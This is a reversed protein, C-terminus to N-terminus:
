TAGQLEPLGVECCADYLASFHKCEHGCRGATCTCWGRCDSPAYRKRVVCEYVEGADDDKLVLFAYSGPGMPSPMEQIYYLDETYTKHHKEGQRVVLAFDCLPHWQPILDYERRKHTKTPRLRRGFICV